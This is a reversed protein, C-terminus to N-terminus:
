CSVVLTYMMFMSNQTKTMHTKRCHYGLGSVHQM